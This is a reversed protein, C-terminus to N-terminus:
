TGVRSTIATLLNCCLYKSNSTHFKEINLFFPWIVFTQWALLGKTIVCCSVSMYLACNWWVEIEEGKQVTRKNMHYPKDCVPLISKKTNVLDSQWRVIMIRIWQILTSWTINYIIMISLQPVTWQRALRLMNNWLWSVPKIDGIAEGPKNEEIITNACARGFVVLDLLSNAGLRNAGHVSACAVEGCAYLGRIVKDKKTKADYTIAQLLLM